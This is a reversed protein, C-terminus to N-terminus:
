AATFSSSTPLEATERTCRPTAGGTLLIPSRGELSAIADNLGNIGSRMRRSLAYLEQVGPVRRDPPLRFRTERVILRHEFPRRAAPSKPDVTFRAPGIQMEIIPHLGDRRLPTATLGVVYRAKVEALVREFSAAPVHHCEDVIVQGYSAVLDAVNSSRVLSQIM